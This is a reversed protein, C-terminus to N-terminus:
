ILSFIWIMLLILNVLLQLVHTKFSSIGLACVKTSYYILLVFLSRCIQFFLWTKWLFVIESCIM